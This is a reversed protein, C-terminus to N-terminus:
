SAMTSGPGRFRRPTVGMRLLFQRNFHSMTSFGCEDAIVSIPKDSQRLKLCAASCRVDNLYQTFPKGVEQRFFRSFAAPTIHAIRAADDVRLEQALQRHIWSIVRDIRRDFLGDASDNDSSRMSSSAIKSFDGENGVLLGLIEVFGALRKLPTASRMDYLIQAIAPHSDGEIKLGLNSGEVLPRARVLEPFADPAIIQPSFQIVTAVSAESKSSPPTIWAHPVGAGVLVLDGTEFPLASDGLFRLGVGQEIWTLELQPHRHLESRFSDTEYRLFRFSQSPHTVKEYAVKM